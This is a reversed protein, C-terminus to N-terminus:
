SNECKEYPGIGVDARSIRPFSQIFGRSSVALSKTRLCPVSFSPISQTNETKRVASQPYFIRQEASTSKNLTERLRRM